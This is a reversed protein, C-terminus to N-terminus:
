WGVNTGRRMVFHVLFQGRGGYSTEARAWFTCFQLAFVVLGRITIMYGHQIGLFHSCSQYKRFTFFLTPIERDFIWGIVTLRLHLCFADNLRLNMRFHFSKCFAFKRLFAGSTFQYRRQFNWNQFLASKWIIDFKRNIQVLSIRIKLSIKM